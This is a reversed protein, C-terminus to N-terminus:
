LLPAILRYVEKVDKNSLIPQHRLRLRCRLRRRRPLRLKM